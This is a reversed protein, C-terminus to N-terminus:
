DARIATLPDVRTARRMPILCAATAVVVIVAVVTGFTAPDAPDVGYLLSQTLRSLALAGAVGVAIGVLAITIGQKLVLGVVQGNGAGLAMRIGIERHRESVMYSLVGYTGIAALLLAVGAFIGLLLSLFRQRTLSAGIVDEMTRLRVIPLGADITNVVERIAPALAGLNRSTELVLNMQPPAFGVLRPGQEFNFYLETGSPVELGGQKVDGSVGVITFMPGNPGFFPNIRRGIPDTDKFFRRALSENIIVVPGGIADAANFARGSSIRIGMTEFYGNTVVQYYDVNAPPDGPGPTYGEINVDNANVQRQPPLGQMASVREVGPIEDLKRSLDSIVQVVRQPDPYTAQPLVLGFTVRNDVEFGADVSTLNRFTRILLGAGIVLMVALAIEAIVLGHRVRNRGAGSTARV